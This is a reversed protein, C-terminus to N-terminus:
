QVHTGGQDVASGEPEPAGATRGAAGHGGGRDAPAGEHSRELTTRKVM